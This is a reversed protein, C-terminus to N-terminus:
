PQTIQQLTTNALRTPWYTLRKITSSSGGTPATQSDRMGFILQTAAITGIATSSTELGGAVSSGQSANSVAVAQKYSTNAVLTTGLVISTWIANASAGTVTPQYRGQRIDLRNTTGSANIAVFGVTGGFAPTSGDVFVTGETQNYFSSEFVSVAATTTPIYATATSGTELQPRSMVVFSTTSIAASTGIGYRLNVTGTSTATFLVTYRGPTSPNTVFTNQTVTGTGSTITIADGIVGSVSEIYISAAYQVGNTVSIAQQYMIRETADADFRIAQAGDASGHISSVLSTQAGTGFAITWSTPATGPSGGVASSWGSQLLLNTRTTGFNSGTISAVDAARTVTASTTPIYSTPFAGAELQAGWAYLTKNSGLNVQFNHTTTDLFTGSVSFRQWASTVLVTVVTVTQFPSSRYLILDVNATGADTRLYISATHAVAASAVGQGLAGGTAVVFKTATNSGNPATVDTTNGTRTVNSAFWGTSLEESRLLLNTRAEEVLLGLSETTNSTAAATTTPVYPGVTSSQELQAGWLYVSETGAKTPQTAGTPDTLWIQTVGNTSTATFTVILRVWGDGVPTRSITASTNGGNSVTDTDFDYFPVRETGGFVSTNFRFGVYRWNNKKVYASLTYTLGSVITPDQRVNGSFTAATATLLDATVTGNPAAIQNSTVAGSKNWSANDFEESRLLLNTTSSTISHDFRPASNITSTTPVYDGVTSSQELQAGWLYVKNISAPTWVEGYVAALGSILNVQVNTISASAFIAVCRRWGNGVDQISGSASTAAYAISDLDFNVYGSSTNNTRLQVYRHTNKKVFISFVNQGSSNILYAIRFDSSSTSTNEFSDATLQGNPAVTTDALITTPSGFAGWSTNLSESNLLLNTVSSRLVGSGDTYTASSARTFTVRPDLTKTGVFNLDLNPREGALDYLQDGFSRSSSVSGLRTANLRM